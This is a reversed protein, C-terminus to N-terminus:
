SFQEDTSTRTLIMGLNSDQSKPRQCFDDYLIKAVDALREEFDRDSITFPIFEIVEPSWRKKSPILKEHTVLTV